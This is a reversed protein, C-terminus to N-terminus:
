RNPGGALIHPSYTIGTNTPNVFELNATVSQGAVWTSGANLVIFPSGAPLSCATIGAPSFLTANSSLGDLALAFAGSLAPATSSRTITVTQLFHKTANNLRFGTERSPSSRLSTPLVSPKNVLPPRRKQRLKLLNQTGLWIVRSAISAMRTGRRGTTIASTATTNLQWLVFPGGNDSVYITYDAIGGGADTGSWQVTFSAVTQTAPLAAIHSIPKSADITNLWVPTDIPPNVDFVITAKNTTIQTGTPASKPQM